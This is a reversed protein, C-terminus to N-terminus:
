RQVLACGCSDYATLHAQFLFSLFPQVSKQDRSILKRRAHCANLILDIEDPAALARLNTVKELFTRIKGVLLDRLKLLHREGEYIHRGTHVSDTAVLLNRGM